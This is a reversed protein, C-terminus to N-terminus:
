QTIPCLLTSLRDAVRGLAAIGADRKSPDRADAVGPVSTSSYGADRDPAIFQNRYWERGPLGAVDLWVRDLAIRQDRRLAREASSGPAARSDWQVACPRLQEFRAILPTIAERVQPDSKESLTRLASVAADVVGNASVASMGDAEALAMLAAAAARTVMSASAYDSGVISRYWTTTDYNTHYSTGPAGSASIGVVPVGVRCVFAVHDSGGGTPKISEPALGTARAVARAISPSASAGLNPGAAAMDLNIYGLCKKLLMDQHAEVWETSGIMGYEEAGWACFLVDCPLRDGAKARDSM